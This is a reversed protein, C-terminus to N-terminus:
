GLVSARRDLRASLHDGLQNIALITVFMVATPILVVNPFTEIMTRGSAIMGGWTATPEPLSLGLVALGGEVTLAVAAGLAYYGAMQPMLSPLIEVLLIRRSSAGAATAAVVHERSRIVRTQVRAVHGFVPIAVIGVGLCLSLLGRQFAAVITVVLVMAPIALVVNFGQVALRDVIGGRYGALMGITVGIVLAAGITVLGLLVATRAGFVIRSLVDRGLEDTGLLHRGSPLAGAHDDAAVQIACGPRPVLRYHGNDVIPTGAADVAVTPPRAACPASRDPDDLGLAPALLAAAIVALLWLAALLTAPSRLNGRRRPADMLADMPAVLSPEFLDSM